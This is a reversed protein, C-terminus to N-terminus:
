FIVLIIDTKARYKINLKLWYVCAEISNYYVVRLIGTSAEKEKYGAWSRESLRYRCHLHMLQQDHLRTVRSMELQVLLSYLGLVFHSKRDGFNSAPFTSAWYLKQKIYILIIVYLCPHSPQLLEFCLLSLQLSFSSHDRTCFPVSWIDQLSSLLGQVQTHKLSDGVTTLYEHSRGIRRNGLVIQYNFIIKCKLYIM